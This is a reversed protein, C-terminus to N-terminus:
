KELSCKNLKVDMLYGDCMGKIKVQDGPKIQIGAVTVKKLTCMVGSIDEANKLYVSLNEEDESISNVIGSVAIVKGLYKVNAAEENEEFEHALVSAEIEIDAKKSSVSVDSKMFVWKWVILAAIIAFVILLLAIVAKRSM